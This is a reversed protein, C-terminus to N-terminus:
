KHFKLSAYYMIKDKKPIKKINKRMLCQFM